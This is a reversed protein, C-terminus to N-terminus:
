RMGRLSRPVRVGLEVADRVLEEYFQRDRCSACVVCGAEHVLNQRISKLRRKVRANWRRRAKGQRRKGRPEFHRSMLSRLVGFSKTGMTMTVKGILVGVANSDVEIRSKVSINTIPIVVREGIFIEAEAYRM